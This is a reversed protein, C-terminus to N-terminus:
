IRFGKCGRFVLVRVGQFGGVGGVVVGVGGGCGGGVGGWVGGCVGVDGWVYSRLGSVRFGSGM